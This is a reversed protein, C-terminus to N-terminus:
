FWVPGTVHVYGRGLVFGHTRHRNGEEKEKTRSDGCLSKWVTQVKVYSAQKQKKLSFKYEEKFATIKFYLKVDRLTLGSHPM